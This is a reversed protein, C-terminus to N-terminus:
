ALSDVGEIPWPWNNSKRCNEAETIVQLNGPVHLGSITKGHLPVIHDVVHKVGTRETEAWALLYFNEIIALDDTTLWPPTRNRKRCYYAHAKAAYYARNEVVHRRSAAKQKEPNQERWRASATRYISRNEQQYARGKERGSQERYYRGRAANEKARNRSKARCDGCHPMYGDFSRKRKHFASIPKDKDCRCCVKM